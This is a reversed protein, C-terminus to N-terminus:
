CVSTLLVTFHQHSPTVAFLFLPLPYHLAFLSSRLTMTLASFMSRLAPASLGVAFIVTLVVLLFLVQLAFFRDPNAELLHQINKQSPRSNKKTKMTQTRQDVGKM